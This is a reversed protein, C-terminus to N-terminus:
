VMEVRAEAEIVELSRELGKEQKLIDRKKFMCDLLIYRYIVAINGGVALPFLTSITVCVAATSGLEAWAFTLLAINLSLFSLFMCSVAVLLMAIVFKSETSLLGINEKRLSSRFKIAMQAVNWTLSRPIRASAITNLSDLTSSRVGVRWRASDAMESKKTTRRKRLSPFYWEIFAVFSNLAGDKLPVTLLLTPSAGFGLAISSSISLLVSFILCVTAIDDTVPSPIGAPRAVYIDHMYSLLGVGLTAIFIAIIAYMSCIQSFTDSRKSYKRQDYNAEKVSGQRQLCALIARLTEASQDNHM